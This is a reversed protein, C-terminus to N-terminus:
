TPVSVASEAARRKALWAAKSAEEAASWWQWVHLCSLFVPFLQDRPPVPVAEFEPDTEVKPLRVILGDTIAGHGMEELAHQYAANQLFAEGYVSKGTKFDILTPRGNVRALLDMTGAFGHTMSWVTDEVRIPELNVSKAWDEFAMFAWEAPPTTEPRPGTVHGLQRLLTWEILAHTQSGIEAAKSLAKDTQRAAGMRKELTTLYASRSMPPARQLDVYLDAAATLAAATATNEAWKVLAPKALTGLVTTVSPMLRGEIEYMRGKATAHRVPPM